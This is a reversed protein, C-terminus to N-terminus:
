VGMLLKNLFSYLTKNKEQDEFSSFDAAHLGKPPFFLVLECEPFNNRWHRVIGWSYIKHHHHVIFLLVLRFDQDKTLSALVKGREKFFKCQNPKEMETNVGVSNFVSHHYHWIVRLPCKQVRKSLKRFLQFFKLVFMPSRSGNEIPIACFLKSAGRHSSRALEVKIYM